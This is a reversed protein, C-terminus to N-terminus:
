KGKKKTEQQQQQSLELKEMDKINTNLRNSSTIFLITAVALSIVIIPGFIDNFKMETNKIIDNISTIIITQNDNKVSNIQTPNTVVEEATSEQTTTTTTTSSSSLSSSSSSPIIKTSVKALAAGRQEAFWIDNNSDTTLYQVFSGTTPINFSTTKGTEPDM